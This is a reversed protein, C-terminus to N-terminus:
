EYHVWRKQLRFQAATLGLVILLLVVAIAAAYGRENEVFAQKYFLYVITQNEVRAQSVRPTILYLLDFVQLTTITTIVTVFFVSPSLLPLTISFFQRIRGAGDIAAAEYYHEPIGQLGAVFIVTNYGLLSWIGVVAMSWLLWDPDSVWHPGDIGVLSLLYNLVGYDGNYIWRWLMAVAAPMTVVPLFYLTRYVSVGRLGRTNLLAAVGISAPVVLLVLGAYTFTNVLADFLEPDQLLTRYNDLGTWRYGGFAGWETFSFYVTRVLPWLYFVLLGLGTPAIMAYAWPWDRRRTSRRPAGPGPGAPRPGGGQALREVPTHTVTM